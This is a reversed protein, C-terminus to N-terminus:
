EAVEANVAELDVPLTDHLSEVAAKVATSARIVDALERQREAIEARLQEERAKYRSGAAIMSKYFDETADVKQNNVLILREKVVSDLTTSEGKGSFFRMKM